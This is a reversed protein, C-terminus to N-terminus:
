VIEVDLYPSSNYRSLEFDASLFLCALILNTSSYTLNLDPSKQSLSLTNLKNRRLSSLLKNLFILQSAAGRPVQNLVCKQYSLSSFFYTWRGTAIAGM